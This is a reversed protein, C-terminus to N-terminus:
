AAGRASGLRLRPAHGSRVGHPRRRPLAAASLLYLASAILLLTRMGTIFSVAELFGGLIAGLLNAGFAADKRPAARFTTGFFLALRSVIQM